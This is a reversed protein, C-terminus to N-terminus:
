TLTVSKKPSFDKDKWEMSIRLKHSFEVRVTDAGSVTVFSGKVRFCFDEIHKQTDIHKHIYIQPERESVDGDVVSVAHYLFSKQVHTKVDKDQNYENISVVRRHNKQSTKNRYIVRKM